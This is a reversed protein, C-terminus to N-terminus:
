DSFSGWDMTQGADAPAAVPAQTPYASQEAQPQMSQVAAPQGPAAGAPLGEMVFRIEDPKLYNYQRRATQEIYRDSGAENLQQRLSEGRQMEEYRQVLLVQRQLAQDKLLAAQNKYAVAFLISLTAVAAFFLRWLVVPRAGPKSMGLWRGGFRKDQYIRQM